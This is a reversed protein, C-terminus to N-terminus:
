ISRCLASKENTEAIRGNVPMCFSMHHMLVNTDSVWKWFRHDANKYLKGERANIQLSCLNSIRNGLYKWIEMDAWIHELLAWVSPMSNNASVPRILGKLNPRFILAHGECYNPNHFTSWFAKVRVRGGTCQTWHELALCQLPAETLHWSITPM